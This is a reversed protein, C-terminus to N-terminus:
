LHDNRSFTRRASLSFSTNETTHPTHYIDIMDMQELTQTFETTEKSLKLRMLRDTSTLPTDFDGKIVTNPDIEGNLNMLTQKM